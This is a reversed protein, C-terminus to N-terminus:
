RAWGSSRSPSASRKQHLRRRELLGRRQEGVRGSSSAPDPDALVERGGAEVPHELVLCAIEGARDLGPNAEGHQALRERNGTLPEREIRGAVRGHARTERSAQGPRERVAEPRWPVEDEADREHEAVPRDGAGAALDHLVDGPVVEALEDAPRLPAEGQDRPHRQPQMRERRCSRREDDLGVIRGTDDALETARRQLRAGEVHEVWATDGHEELSPFPSDGGLELGGAGEDAAGLRAVGHPVLRPLPLTARPRTRNAGESRALTRDVSSSATTRGAAPIAYTGWRTPPTGDPAARRTWRARLCRRSGAPTRAHDFLEGLGADVAAEAQRGARGVDEPALLHVRRAPADLQHLLGRLSRERQAGSDHLM